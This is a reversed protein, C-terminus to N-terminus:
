LGARLARKNQMRWAQEEVLTQSRAASERRGPPETRSAHKGLAM